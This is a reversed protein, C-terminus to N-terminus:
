GGARARPRSPRSDVPNAVLSARGVPDTGRMGFVFQYESAALQYEPHVRPSWSDDGGLGMQHLDLSLTVRGDRVIRQSTKAALLAQDGYDHATFNLTPVGSVRLGIGSSGTLAVWRVDTRNGNEQPMVHPFHLDEVRSTHIDLRAGEKRDWYSEQPGRGYWTVRDLDAPLQVQFGIRPLPPWSEPREFTSAVAVEGDGEVDYRTTVVMAAATGRLESAVSVRARGRDLREVRVGKNALALRDLGAARWRHAFSQQGGGEDNDTPVRWLHPALPGVLLETGKWRYSALGGAAADIVAVFDPGSLEVRDGLERVTLAPPPPPAAPSVPATPLLVQEWAVEHGKAAWPTDSRLVLSVELIREAGSRVPATFPIQIEASSGPAVAPSEALTGSEVAVGDDLVRWALSLHSLDIFDYANRLSIRGSAPDDVEIKVPQQVKKAETLEPQPTRDANVLGDNANAGDSTNVWNWLGGPQRLAQDVWDWIFGGQLRPHADYADWYKKFNGLGNGMAHSFECIIVPRTADRAMLDLIADITPYMTSIVDFSSLGHVYPPNRSEYHIPRSPDLAKMAAYMADLNRGLGTENGLSWLVISPHNKDREVMATGRAVFAGTWAPDDGIYIKKEWLEHSELNAEDILYIGYEDCLDYWLSDNPYHSTRVANFNHQKLLRIDQLMRERSLVRGTDPDFEHRNAGKFTVAVGNVLLQGGRIEVERFGIRTAVAELTKGSGDLHELLLTYLHPTEASWLRPATVLGSAQLVAEQGAEIAGSPALKAAFVEAREASFVTARVTHGPAVARSRNELSVIIDLTAGRYGADLDTRVRFDRLRVPPQAVLFVDRFIGAFRWYDQDELYSGDSHHIVQVALVNAGPRLHPTVDFEGPTFADERYGLRIGNLWVYYASQVGGFHLFVPWGAWDAPVEFRTRYLGVPNDDHPVRPPDAPFPHKINSFFPRDYPRGENAGVVQWNSPVPMPDWGADGHDPKEFGAPVASPNKVLRFKWTGNLSRLRRSRLRDLSMAEERTAHPAFTARPKETGLAFVAPDEWEPTSVGAAALVVLALLTQM